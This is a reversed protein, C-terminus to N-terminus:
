RQVKIIIRRKPHDLTAGGKPEFSSADLDGVLGSAQLQQIQEIIDVDNALPKTIDQWRVLSTPTIGEPPDSLDASIAYPGATATTGGPVYLDISLTATLAGDADEDIIITSLHSLLTDDLGDITELLTDM